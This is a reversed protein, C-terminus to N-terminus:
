YTNDVSQSELVLSPMCSICLGPQLQIATGSNCYRASARFLAKEAGDCLMCSAHM